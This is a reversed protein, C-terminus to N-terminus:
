GTWVWHASLAVLQDLLYEPSVWKSRVVAMNHSQGAVVEELNQREPILRTVVAHVKAWNGPLGLFSEVISVLGWWHFLMKLLRVAEVAVGEGIVVVLLVV